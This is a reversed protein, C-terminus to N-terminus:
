NKINKAEGKKYIPIILGIKWIDPVKGQTISQNFLLKLPSILYRM